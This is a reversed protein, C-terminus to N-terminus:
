GHKPGEDTPVPDGPQWGKRRGFHLGVRCSFCAGERESRGDKLLRYTCGCPCACEDSRRMAIKITATM